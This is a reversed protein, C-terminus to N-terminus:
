NGKLHWTKLRAYASNIAQVKKIYLKKGRHVDPHNSKVLLRYRAKLEKLSTVAEIDFLRMAEKVENPCKTQWRREGDTKFGCLEALFPIVRGYGAPLVRGLPWTPKM